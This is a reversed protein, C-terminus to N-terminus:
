PTGQPAVERVLEAVRPSQSEPGSALAPDLALARRLSAQAADRRELGLSSLAALYYAKARLRDVEGDGAHPALLATASEALTLAQEFDASRYRSSAVDLLRRGHGSTDDVSAVKPCVASRCPAPSSPARGTARTEPPAAVDAPPASAVQPPNCRDTDPVRLRLGAEIRDPNRVGNAAALWAVSVHRCRAVEALTDGPRVIYTARWSAPPTPSRPVVRAVPPESRRADPGPPTACALGVAALALLTLRAEQMLTRQDQPM